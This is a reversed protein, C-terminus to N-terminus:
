SRILGVQRFIIQLQAFLTPQSLYSLQPVLMIVNKARHFKYNWLYVYYIFIGTILVLGVCLIIMYTATSKITEQINDNISIKLSNTLAQIVKTTFQIGFFDDM